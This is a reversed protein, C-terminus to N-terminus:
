APVPVTADAPVRGTSRAARIAYALAYPTCALYLYPAILAQDTILFMESGTPRPLGFAWDTLCVFLWLPASVYSVTDDQPVGDIVTPLGNPIQSVVALVVALDAVVLAGFVGLLWAARVRGRAALRGAGWLVPVLGALWLLLGPAHPPLDDPRVGAAFGTALLVPGIPLVVGLAVRLPGALATRRAWRAVLVALPVALGATLVTWVPLQAQTSWSVRQSLADSVLAGLVVAAVGALPALLLPLATTRLRRDVPAREALPTGPRSAALSAAYRLMRAPRGEAALVHLEAAWERHLDARLEAPWRRAAIRLLSDALRRTVM